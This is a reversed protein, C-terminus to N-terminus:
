HDTEGMEKSCLIITSTLYNWLIRQKSSFDRRHLFKDQDLSRRRVKDSSKKRLVVAEFEPEDTKTSNQLAEESGTPLEPSNEKIRELKEDVTRSFVDDDGSSFKPSVPPSITVNVLANSSITRQKKPPLAPPTFQSNKPM